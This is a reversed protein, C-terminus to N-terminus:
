KKEEETGQQVGQQQVAEDHAAPPEPASPAEGLEELAEARAERMEQEHRRHVELRLRDRRYWEDLHLRKGLLMAVGIVLLLGIVGLLIATLLVEIAVM